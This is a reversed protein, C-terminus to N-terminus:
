IVRAGAPDVKCVDIRGISSLTEVLKETDGIAFLSNGLMAMGGKGLEEKGLREKGLRGKGLEGRGLGRILQLAEKIEDSALGTELTFNRAYEFFMDLSPLWCIGDVAVRGAADIVKRKEPDGLISSTSLPEPLSLCVVDLAPVPIRDVFGFPPLGPKKRITVGGTCQAAVDGLGTSYELEALHAFYVTEYYTFPLNLAERLALVASLAGAGSMGWGSKEPLELKTEVQIDMPSDKSIWGKESAEIIMGEVAFRTVEAEREKNDIWIMLRIGSESDNEGADRNGDGPKTSHGGGITVTTYAGKSLCIGSGLSGKMIPDEPSDAIM